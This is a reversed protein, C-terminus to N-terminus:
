TSAPPTPTMSSGTSPPQWATSRSGPRHVTAAGTAFTVGALAAWSFRQAKSPLAVKVSLTSDGVGSASDSVGADHTRQYDLLPTALQLEVNQGLGARLNTDLSYLTSQSGSGSAHVFDPIGFELAFSGPPITATSFAIGPRDFAPADATGSEAALMLFALTAAISM